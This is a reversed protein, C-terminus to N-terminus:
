IADRSLIDFYVNEDTPTQHLCGRLKIVNFGGNVVLVSSSITMTNM